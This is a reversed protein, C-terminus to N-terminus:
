SQKSCLEGCLSSQWRLVRNTRHTRNAVFLVQALMVKPQSIENACCSVSGVHCCSVSGVKNTELLFSSSHDLERHDLERPDLQRPDLSREARLSSGTSGEPFGCTPETPKRLGSRPSCSGWLCFTLHIGGTPCCSVQCCPVQGKTLNGRTM